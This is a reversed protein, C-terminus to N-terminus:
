PEEWEPCEQLSPCLLQHNFQQSLGLDGRSLGTLTELPGQGPIPNQRRSGFERSKESPSYTLPLPAAQPWVTSSGTPSLSSCLAGSAGLSARTMVPSDTAVDVSSVGLTVSPYQQGSVHETKRSDTPVPLKDDPGQSCAGSQPGPETGLLGDSREKSTDLEEIQPWFWTSFCFFLTLESVWKLRWWHRLM